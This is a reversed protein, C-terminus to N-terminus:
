GCVGTTASRCCTRARRRLAPRGLPQDKYDSYDVGCLDILQEFRLAPDDRLAAAAHWTTAPRVTVTIEGRDRVLGQRARRASSWRPRCPTSNRADHRNLAQM